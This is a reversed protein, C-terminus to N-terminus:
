TPIIMQMRLVKADTQVNEPITEGKGQINLNGTVALCIADIIDDPNCKLERSKGLIQNAHLEPLYQSLIRIREALGELDSKKSMVVKGNLRAFCVEPHSEKIVNKYKPHEEFFMDVERIKPIIARTQSGLSKGLAKMNEEIQEERTDKYVAQRSPVAFITSTRPVVIKRAVTDPRLDTECSPLGIVMDMLFEDFEPYVSVIQDLDAYKEIRLKGHDYLACIWGGKCGDVGICLVDHDLIDDFAANELPYKMAVNIIHAINQDGAFKDPDSFNEGLPLWKLPNVEEVLDMDSHLQGVYIELIFRQHYYTMDMLHFLAIDQRAIGTEEELERYAADYGNEGPEIKGGVFNYLGQYPDKVRKCFLVHNKDQDFVVICNYYTQDLEYM